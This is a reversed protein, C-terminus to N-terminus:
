QPNSRVIILVTRTTYLRDTKAGCDQCTRITLPSARRGVVPIGDLLIDGEGKDGFTLRGNTLNACKTCLAVAEEKRRLTRNQSDGQMNLAGYRHSLPQYKRAQKALSPKCAKTDSTV